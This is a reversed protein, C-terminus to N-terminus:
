RLTVGKDKTEYNPKAKVSIVRGGSVLVTLDTTAYWVDDGHHELTKPYRRSVVGVYVLEVGEPVERRFGPKGLAIIVGRASDGVTPNGDAIHTQEADSLSEVYAKDAASWEAGSRCAVLTALVLLLPLIRTAPNRKM